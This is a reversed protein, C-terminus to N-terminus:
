RLCGSAAIVVSLLAGAGAAAGAGFGVGFGAGLGVGFGVGFDAGLDFGVGLGVGVVVVSSTSLLRVVRSARTRFSARLIWSFSATLCCIIWFFSAVALRCCSLRLLLSSPSATVRLSLSLCARM